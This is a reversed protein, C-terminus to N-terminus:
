DRQMKYRVFVLIATTAVGALPSFIGIEFFGIVAVLLGAIAPGTVDIESLKKKTM